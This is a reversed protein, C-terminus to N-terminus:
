LKEALRYFYRRGHPSLFLRALVHIVPHRPPCSDMIDRCFGLLEAERRPTLCGSKVARRGYHHFRRWFEKAVFPLVETYGLSAMLRFADHNVTFIDLRGESFPRLTFSSEHRRYGYLPRPFYVVRSCGPLVHNNFYEDEHNLGVPFRHGEVAKRSYLKGWATFPFKGDRYRSALAERGTLVLPPVATERERQTFAFSSCCSVDANHRLAAHYLEELYTRRVIDDSDIFTLWEGRAIDMGANRAGSIGANVQHVVRVRGDREAFADCLAPCGDPSGDDVLICEFDEFTQALIGDVCEPLFAEVNYVPVIVSVAPM